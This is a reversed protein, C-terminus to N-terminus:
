PKVAQILPMAVPDSVQDKGFPEVPAKQSYLVRKFLPFYPGFCHEKSYGSFYTNSFSSSQLNRTKFYKKMFGLM